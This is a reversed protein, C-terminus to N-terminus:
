KRGSLYSQFWRLSNDRFGYQSLKELLLAHSISDFAKTLDIFAAGVIENRELSCRWDDVSRIVDQTTCTSPGLGSQAENLIGHQHLYGYVQAYVLSEFVKAVAPLISILRYQDM